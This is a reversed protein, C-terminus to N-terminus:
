DLSTDHCAPVYTQMSGCDVSISACSTVLVLCLPLSALLLLGSPLNECALLFPAVAMTRSFALDLHSALM